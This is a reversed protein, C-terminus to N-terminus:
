KEKLEEGTLVFYLDQLQHVHLIDRIYVYEKGLYANYLGDENIISLFKLNFVDNDDFIDLRKYMVFTFTDEKEFGFDLLQEETLPIPKFDDLNCLVIDSLEIKKVMDYHNFLHGVRLEKVDM